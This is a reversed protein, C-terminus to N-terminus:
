EHIYKEEMKKQILPIKKKILDLYKGFTPKFMINKEPEFEMLVEFKSLKSVNDSIENDFLSLVVELVVYDIRLLSNM